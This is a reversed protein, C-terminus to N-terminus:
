ALSFLHFLSLLSYIVQKSYGGYIVINGDLTSAMQCGSRPCPATGSPCVKTWTFKDLNFSYIDNYYVFDRFCFYM